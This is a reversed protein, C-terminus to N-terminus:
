SRPIRRFAAPPLISRRRKPEGTDPQARGELMQMPSICCLVLFAVYILAILSGIVRLVKM